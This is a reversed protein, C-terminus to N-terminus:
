EILHFLRALILCVGGVCLFLGAIIRERPSVQYRARILDPLWEPLQDDSDVFFSLIGVVIWVIAVGFWLVGSVHEEPVTWGTFRIVLSGIGLLVSACFLITFLSWFREKRRTGSSLGVVGPCPHRDFAGPGEFSKRCLPCVQVAM